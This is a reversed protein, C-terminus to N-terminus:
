TRRWWREAGHLEGLEGLVRQREGTRRWDLVQLTQGLRQAVLHLEVGLALVAVRAQREAAVLRALELVDDRLGDLAAVVREHGDATDLGVLRALYGGHGRVEAELAHQHLLVPDVVQGLLGRHVVVHAVDLQGADQAGVHTAVGRAEVDADARAPLGGHLADLLGAALRVGNRRAARLM